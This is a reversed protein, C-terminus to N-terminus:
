SQLFFNLRIKKKRKVDTLDSNLVRNRIKLYEEMKLQKVPIGAVYTESPENLYKSIGLGLQILYPTCDKNLSSGQVDNNTESNLGLIRAVKMSVNSLPEFEQNEMKPEIIPEEQASNIKHNQQRITSKPPYKEKKVKLPLKKKPEIKKKIHKQRKSRTYHSHSLPYGNKPFREYVVLKNQLLSEQNVLEFLSDNLLLTPPLFSQYFEMIPIGM